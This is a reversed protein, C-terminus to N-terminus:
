VAVAPKERSAQLVPGRALSALSSRLAERLVSHSHSSEVRRRAAEGVQARKVSDNLLDTVRNSFQAPGDAILIERDPVFSLGEAGVRTSVVPKGMAAAELIKFRTGHGIRLPVVCVAAKAIVERTDAVTETLEVGPLKSLQRYMEDSPGRGAIVFRVNRVRERVAPLIDRALFQVADRDPHSDMGGVYLVIPEAAQPAVAYEELDVTDPVIACPKGDELRLMEERDAESCALHLEARRMAQLDWERMKTQEISAYLRRLKRTELEASCKLVLHEVNHHDIVLPVPLERPLNVLSYSTEALVADVEHLELHAVVNALMENSQFRSVAYPMGNSLALARRRLSGPASLSRSDVAVAEVCDCLATLPQLDQRLEDRTAFCFLSVQHGEAKVGRLISWARMKHGNTPPFPIAMALMLIKM